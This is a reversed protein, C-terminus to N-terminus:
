LISILHLELPPHSILLPLPGGFNSALEANGSVTIKLCLEIARMVVRLSYSKNFWSRRTSDSEVAVLVEPILKSEGPARLALIAPSQTASNPPPQLQMNQRGVGRLEVRVFQHPLVQLGVPHAPLRHLTGLLEM